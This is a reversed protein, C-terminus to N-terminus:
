FRTLVNRTHKRTFSQVLFACGNVNSLGCMVALRPRVTRTYAAAEVLYSELEHLLKLRKRPRKKAQIRRLQDVKARVVARYAMYFPLVALGAHDGTHEIYANLFRRAFDRRGHNELDMTMFAVESMVDTWRLAANFELCDFLEIRDDCMLMNGLHLDGHCERVFGNARRAALLDRHEEFWRESFERVRNALLRDPEPLGDRFLIDLNDMVHRRIVEPTGLRPGPAGDVRQHFRALQLAFTEFHRGQLHDVSLLHVLLADQDFQKMRVAYDIVEGDGSVCPQEHTGNVPCVDIYRDDSWRRNLALEDLCYRRRLELTSFDLFSFKVPKKVKYAYRGTLVIWSIHTELLQMKGTDHPFAGPKLLNQIWDQHAM